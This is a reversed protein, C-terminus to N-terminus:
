TISCTETEESQSAAPSAAGVHDAATNDETLEASQAPGETAVPKKKKSAAPTPHREAPPKRKPTEM